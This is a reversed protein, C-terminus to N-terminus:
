FTGLTVASCSANSAIDVSDGDLDFPHAAVAISAQLQSFRGCKGSKRWVAKNGFSLFSFMVAVLLFFM